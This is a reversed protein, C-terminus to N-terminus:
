DRRAACGAARPEQPRAVLAVDDAHQPASRALRAVTGPTVLPFLAPAEDVVRASDPVPLDASARRGAQRGDRGQEDATM